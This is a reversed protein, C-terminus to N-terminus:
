KRIKVSYKKKMKEIFSAYIMQKEANVLQQKLYPFIEDSEIKKRFLRDTRFKKGYRKEINKQFDRSNYKKLIISKSVKINNFILENIYRKLLYQNKIESIFKIYDTDDYMKMLKAKSEFIRAYLFERLAKSCAKRKVSFKRLERKDIMQLLDKKLDSNRYELSIKKVTGIINNPNKLNIKEPYMKIEYEASMKELNIRTVLYEKVENVPTFSDDKVDDCYILHYGYVTKVPKKTFEGKCLSRVARDFPPTMEGKAFYGLDGGKKGTTCESYKKALKAFNSGDKKIEGLISMIKNRSQELSRIGKGAKILIHRAKIKGQVRFLEKDRNYTLMLNKYPVPEKRVLFKNLFYKLDMERKVSKWKNKINAQKDFGDTKIAYKLLAQEVLGNLVYERAKNKGMDNIIKNDMEAIKDDIDSEFINMAGVVAATRSSCGSVFM